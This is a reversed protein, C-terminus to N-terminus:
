VYKINCNLVVMKVYCAIYINLVVFSQQVQIDVAFVQGYVVGVSADADMIRAHCELAGPALLDDSDVIVIYDGRAEALGLNISAAQGKNANGPHVLLRLRSDSHEALWERTGDESGDDVVLYELDSLSQDLVSTVTKPILGKRNYAPTIVSVKPKM